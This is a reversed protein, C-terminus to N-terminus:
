LAFFDDDLRPREGEASRVAADGPRGAAQKLGLRSRLREMFTQPRRGVDDMEELLDLCENMSSTVGIGLARARERTSADEAAWVLLATARSESMVDFCNELSDDVLVDLALAHAVKGRSGTVTFVSPLDFGHDVLWRQTQIQVTAGATGPRRTLFLVEWQREGALKRLRPLVAGDIPTVTTWFDKTAAIEAWIRELQRPTFERTGGECPWLTETPQEHVRNTPGYMREGIEMLKGYFDALVGDLDIALRLPTGETTKETM